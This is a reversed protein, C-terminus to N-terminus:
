KITKKRKQPLIIIIWYILGVMIAGGIINGLTVPLLNGFLGTINVRSIDLNPAMKNLAEIVKPNNKLVIGMPIFYMNAISHEFGSAVFATIPFIIAAIKSIVTRASFCLWVALCVLANCLIASALAEVFGLNTKAAAIQVAKAGLMFEKAKWQNTLFMIFVVSLSGIFNGSYSVVWNRLLQKWTVVRSTFAMIIMTNGTFLEAGAIVVLILGISFCLGGILKTLGFSLNSDFIVLTYFEGAIAIYAGALISLLLLSLFNLNAKKVGASEVKKAIDAPAYDDFNIDQEAM